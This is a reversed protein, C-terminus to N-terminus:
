LKDIATTMIVLGDDDSGNDNTVEVNDVVYKSGGGSDVDDGDCAM